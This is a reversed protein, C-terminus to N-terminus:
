NDGRVERIYQEAKQGETEGKWLGRLDSPMVPEVTDEEIKITTVKISDLNGLRDAKVDGSVIVRKGLGNRVQELHLESFHCTVGRDHVADYVRFYPRNRVTATELRGEVSGISHFYEAPEDSVVTRSLGAVAVTQSQHAVSVRYGAQEAIKSLERAALLAPESFHMPQQQGRSLADLGHISASAVQASIDDDQEAGLTALAPSSYSLERIMWRISGSGRMTLETEVCGLIKLTHRISDVFAQASVQGSDNALRISIDSNVM